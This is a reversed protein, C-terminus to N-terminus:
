GHGHDAIGHTLLAATPENTAQCRGCGVASLSKVLGLGHVIEELAQASGLFDVLNRVRVCGVWAVVVCLCVVAAPNHWHKVRRV